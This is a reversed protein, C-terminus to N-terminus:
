RTESGVRHIDSGAGLAELNGADCKGWGWVFYWSHVGGQDWIEPM